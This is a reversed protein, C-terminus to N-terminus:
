VLPSQVELPICVPDNFTHPFCLSSSSGQSNTWLQLDSSIATQIMKQFTVDEHMRPFHQCPDDFIGVTLINQDINAHWHSVSIYPVIATHHEVVLLDEEDSGLHPKRIISVVSFHPKEGGPLSYSLDFVVVQFADNAIDSPLVLYWESITYDACPIGTNTCLCAFLKECWVPVSPSAM